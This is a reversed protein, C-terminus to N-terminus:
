TGTHTKRQSYNMDRLAMVRSTGPLYNMVTGLRAVQELLKVEDSDLYDSIMDVSSLFKEMEAIKSANIAQQYISSGQASVAADQARKLNGFLFMEVDVYVGNLHNVWM